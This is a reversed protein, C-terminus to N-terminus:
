AGEADSGDLAMGPSDRKARCILGHDLLGAMHYPATMCLCMETVPCCNCTLSADGWFSHETSQSLLTAQCLEPIKGWHSQSFADPQHWLLCAHAVSIHSQTPVTASCWAQQTQSRMQREGQRQRWVGPFSGALPWQGRPSSLPIFVGDGHVALPVTLPSVCWSKSQYQQSQREMGPTAQHHNM